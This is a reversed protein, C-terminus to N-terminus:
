RIRTGPNGFLHYVALLEPMVGTEAYAAQAALVADGLREHEGEAQDQDGGIPTVVVGDFDFSLDLTFNSSYRVVVFDDDSGNSIYGAQVIKGDTQIAVTTGLDHGPGIPTTVLCSQGHSPTASLAVWLM